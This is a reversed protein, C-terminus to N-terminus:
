STGKSASSKNENEELFRLVDQVSDLKLGQELRTQEMKLLKGITKNFIIKAGKRTAAQFIKGDFKLGLFKLAEKWKGNRKIVGSKEKHIRIGTDIPPHIETMKIPEDSFSVSDDAYAITTIGKYDNM